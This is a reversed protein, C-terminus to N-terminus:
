NATVTLTTTAIYNDSPIMPVPNAQIQVRFKLTSTSGTSYTGTSVITKSSTTAALWCHDGGAVTDLAGIGCASANDRFSINLDSTTSASVTYGFYAKNAPVTFNYDPVGAVSSIYAPITQGTSTGTMGASSSAALTMTYGTSNNTAVIVQTEGGSTGGTLGGLTPSLVVNSAPTLFAVEGSVLQSITFQSQATTAAFSIAPEIASILFAVILSAAVAGLIAKKFEGVIVHFNINKM